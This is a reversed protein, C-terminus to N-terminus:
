CSLYAPIFFPGWREYQRVHVHEHDRAVSLGSESQGVITHGLTMALFGGPPLRQLMWAILGGSFELCGRRLKVRGGTLLGFLGILIGLLSNPAVWILLFLRKLLTM